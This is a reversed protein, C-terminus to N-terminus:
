GWYWNEDRYGREPAPLQGRPEPLPVVADENGRRFQLGPGHRHNLPGVADRAPMPRPDDAQGMREQGGPAWVPGEAVTPRCTEFRPGPRSLAAAAAAAM